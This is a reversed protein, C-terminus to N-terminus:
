KEEILPRVLIKGKMRAKSIGWFRPKLLSGGNDSQGM